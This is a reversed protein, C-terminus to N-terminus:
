AVGDQPDARAADRVADAARRAPVPDGPEGVAAQRVAQAGERVRGIRQHLVARRRPEVRGPPHPERQLVDAGRRSGQRRRRLDRREARARGDALHPRPRDAHQVDVDDRRGQLGELEDADPIRHHRRRRRSQRQHARLDPRIEGQSHRHELDQRRQHGLRRRRAARGNGHANRRLRSGARHHRICLRAPGRADGSDVREEARRHRSSDDADPRRQQRRDLTREAPRQAPRSREGRLARPHRGHRPQHRRQRRIGEPVSLSLPRRRRGAQAGERAASGLGGVAPRRPGLRHARRRPPSRLLPHQRGRERLPKIKKEIFDDLEVLYDALDKPLDFNM